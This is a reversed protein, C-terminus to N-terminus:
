DPAHSVRIRETKRLIERQRLKSFGTEVDWLTIAPVTLYMSAPMYGPTPVNSREATAPVGLQYQFTGQGMTCTMDNNTVKFVIM